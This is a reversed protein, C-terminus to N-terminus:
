VSSPWTGYQFECTYTIRYPVNKELALLISKSHSIFAEVFVRLYREFCDKPKM